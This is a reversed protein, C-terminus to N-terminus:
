ALWHKFRESLHLLIDVVTTTPKRWKSPFVERRKPLVIETPNQHMGEFLEEYMRAVRDPTEALGERDPDEGIAVLINRVAAAIADKDVTM